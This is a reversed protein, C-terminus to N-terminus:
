SAARFASTRFASRLSGSSVPGISIPKAQTDAQTDAAKTADLVLTETRRRNGNGAGATFSNAAYTVILEREPLSRERECKCIHRQVFYRFTHPHFDSRRFLSHPLRRSRLASGSLTIENNNISSQDVPDGSRSTFTIDIYGSNNLIAPDIAGNNIPNM